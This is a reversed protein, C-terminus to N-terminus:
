NKIFMQSAADKKKRKKKLILVKSVSLLNYPLRAYLVKNLKCEKTKGASLAMKLRVVGRGTAEVSYDDGLTVERSPDLSKFEVFQKKDNCMHCTAGSDIIWREMREDSSSSLAHSAMLGVSESDSDSDQKKQAM